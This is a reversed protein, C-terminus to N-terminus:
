PSAIGEDDVKQGNVAKSGDERPAESCLQVNCIGRQNDQARQFSTRIGKLSPVTQHMCLIVPNM